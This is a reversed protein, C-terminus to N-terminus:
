ARARVPIQVLPTLPQIVTAYRRVIRDYLDPTRPSSVSVVLAYRIREAARTPGSGERANYHITFFPNSLSSARKTKKERHLTTEWKHAQHRLEQENSFEKLQFFPDSKLKDPSPSDEAYQQDHPFFVVDMGARTYNGPHAPDVPTAYCLTAKITVNGAMQESPMPIPARLYQAPNLEGQFVIRATGPPCAVYAELEAPLRGWGVESRDQGGEEAAHVLLAKIALPSLREGFHARIGTALRLAAPSAFSTGLDCDSLSGNGASVFGFPETVTGGFMVADPKVLGPSRGPGTSSYPARSWTDGQSDAAGIAMANVCDSPVQVRDYRLTRDRDGGNGGAVTVLRDGDSLLDDLVSTWAHVDDDEIPIEPGISLNIFEHTNSQIVDRVRALVDFLDGDQQGSSNDLVRYHDVMAFPRPIARGDDIPGFLLSSTVNSGHRLYLDLAPGVDGADHRTVWRSLSSTEPVGGDFVAARLDPDVPDEDPLQCAFAPRPAMRIPSIPRLKPMVRAVRLFSFKGLDDLRSRVGHVPFFCLQGAYLRRDMDARMGLSSAYAVFAELVTGDTPGAHLAVELLPEDLDEPVARIRDTSDGARILEIKPLDEAGATRDSWRVLGAAWDRFTSRDGAVFLATSEAEQPPGKRTWEEPTIRVPRSGITELGVERLLRGPYASKSLAQPHLTFVAVAQDNPCAEDPLADFLGATALM